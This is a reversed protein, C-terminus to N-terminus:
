QLKEHYRSHAPSKLKVLETLCALMTLVYYGLVRRYRSKLKDCAFSQNYM